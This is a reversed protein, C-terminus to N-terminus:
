NINRRGFLFLGLCSVVAIFGLQYLPLYFLADCREKISPYDDAVREAEQKATRYEDASILKGDIIETGNLIMEFPMIRKVTWMLTRKTGEEVFYPNPSRYEDDDTLPQEADDLDYQADYYYGDYKPFYLNKGLSGDALAFCIMTLLVATLSILMRNSMVTIVTSLATVAIYGLAVCGVALIVMYPKFLNYYRTCFIFSPLFYVLTLILTIVSNVLMNSLFFARKTTGTILKNRVTGRSFERGTLLPPLAAIAFALYPASTTDADFLHLSEVDGHGLLPLSEICGAILFVVVAALFPYSMMNHRLTFRFIKAM